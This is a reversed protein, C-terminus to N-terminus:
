KGETGKGSINLVNIAESPNSLFPSICCLTKLMNTVKLCMDCGYIAERMPKMFSNSFMPSLISGWPSCPVAAMSGLLLVRVGRSNATGTSPCLYLAVFGLESVRDLIFNCSFAPLVLLTVSKWRQGTM